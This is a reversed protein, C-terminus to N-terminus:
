ILLTKPSKEGQKDPQVQLLTIATDYVHMREQLYKSIKLFKKVSGRQYSSRYVLFNSGLQLKMIYNERKFDKSHSATLKLNEAHTKSIISSLSTGMSAALLFISMM